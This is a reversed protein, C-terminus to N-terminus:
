SFLIVNLIRLAIHYLYLYFSRAYLSEFRGYPKQENKGVMFVSIYIKEFKNTVDTLEYAFITSNFLCIYRNTTERFQFCVHSLSIFM